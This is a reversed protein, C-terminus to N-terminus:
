ENQKKKELVNQRISPPSLMSEDFVIPGYRHRKSGVKKEFDGIVEGRMGEPMDSLIAKEDGFFDRELEELMIKNKFIEALLLEFIKRDHERM